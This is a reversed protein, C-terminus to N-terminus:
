INKDNNNRQKSLKYTWESISECLLQTQQLRLTAPVTVACMEVTTDTSTLTAPVTVACMEVTTDTSTLTAPVTVTCMEVTPNRSRDWLSTKGVKCLSIWLQANGTWKLKPPWQRQSPWLSLPCLGFLLQMPKDIHIGYHRLAETIYLGDALCIWPQRGGLFCCCCFFLCFFLSTGTVPCPSPFTTSFLCTQHPTYCTLSTNTNPM